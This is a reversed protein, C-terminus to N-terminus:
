RGNSHRKKVEAHGSPSRKNIQKIMTDVLAKDQDELDRWGKLLKKEEPTLRAEPNIDAFVDFDPVDGDLTLKITNPLLDQPSVGLAKAFREITSQTPNKFERGGEVRAIYGQQSGIIKALDKQTLRKNKRLLKIRKGFSDMDRPYESLYINELENFNIISKSSYENLNLKMIIFIENFRFFILFCFPKVWLARAVFDLSESLKMQWISFPFCRSMPYSERAARALAKPTM